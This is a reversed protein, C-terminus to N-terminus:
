ATQYDSIRYAQVYTTMVTKMNAAYIKVPLTWSYGRKSDMDTLYANPEIIFRGDFKDQARSRVFNNVREVLQPGTLKANGSFERWAAANIKNLECIALATLYSNLVSTDDDYVTKLAPFFFSHRDYPQVWVLGVDWEKNRVSAPVNTISIDYMYDVISGPAGDFDKGNKWKGTGAGMYKASKIAIELSLPLRKNYQSNYVRASRGVIMGRMVPTGFYDSEPYNQLRTRLAVAISHEESATNIAAGSVYTSLVVFTDKRLAIAKILDYKTQLPFGSDYFVSEVNVAMDQVSSNPDAYDDMASSVATAFSSDNITGDSGGAAYINTYQTLLVSEVDEVFQMSHYPVNQSTTGSVFNMLYADKVDASIDSFADIHPVEKAHFLTVLQAINDKYLAMSGFDGFTLPYKTESLNQYSSILVDGAYLQADTNPDIINQKFTFMVYQDGFLTQQAKPSSGADAREVVSFFFPYVREKAMLATPMNMVNDTTPAWMRIGVNNGWAGPSAAKLEMIPYRTSQTGLTVDTQSGPRQTLAGFTAADQATSNHTVVWKLKVGPIIGASIPLQQSDLKISGDTNREYDTVTTELVDLWLVINANPGIDSPVVRQLMLANGQANIKNAFVTAHNCYIDREDFTREGFMSSLEAGSVLQPTLPGKEAWLFFKPLHTPVAEAVRPLQVTSNDQTGLLDVMPAANVIFPSSM